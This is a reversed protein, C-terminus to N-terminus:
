KKKKKSGKKSNSKSSKELEQYAWPFFMGVTMYLWDYEFVAVLIEEQTYPRYMSPNFDKPFIDEDEVVTSRLFKKLDPNHKMILKLYKSANNLDNKKYFLLSFPMLMMASDEEFRRYLEIASYEDGVLAYLSMLMYRMGTNDGDNLELLDEAETIAADFMCAEILADIYALRLRMYPRTQHVHWFEGEYEEDYYGQEEMVKNGHDIAAEYKKIMDFPDKATLAVVLSEADLNDPDLKLAKKAFRLAEEPSGANEALEMYDDSSSAPVPTVSANAGLNGNYEEMFSQLMIELDEQSEPHGHDDMYKAFSKFVKETEKSM